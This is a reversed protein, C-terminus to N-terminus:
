SGLLLEICFSYLPLDTNATEAVLVPKKDTMAEEAETKELEYIEKLGIRM